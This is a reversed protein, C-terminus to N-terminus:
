QGGRFEMEYRSPTESTVTCGLGSYIALAAHNSKHVSLRIADYGGHTTGWALASRSIERGYGHGAKHPDVFVYFEAAGGGVDRLGAMGVVQGCGPDVATWDVRSQDKVIREYWGRTSAVDIGNPIQMFRRTHADTMWAVRTELDEAALPRLEVTSSKPFARDVDLPAGSDGAVVSVDKGILVQAITKGLIKLDLTLTATRVYESDMALRLDWNLTNRGSTQSLGTVGPRVLHRSRESPKYFPLYRPFLPRPGVLGMEGRAINALQPLEDLSAARLFRGLPTLRARDPLLDGASDRADTMTRFKLIEFPEANLGLRTQSYFVPRGIGIRVVFAVFLGLPAAVPSSILLMFIDMVRKRANLRRLRDQAESM